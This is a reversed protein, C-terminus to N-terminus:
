WTKVPWTEREKQKAKDVAAKPPMAATAKRRKKASFLDGLKQSGFSPTLCQVKSNRVRKEQSHIVKALKLKLQIHM